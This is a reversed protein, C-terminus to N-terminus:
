VFRWSAQGFTAFTGILQLDEEMTGEPIEYILYGDAANGEGMRLWGIQHAAYGGTDPNHGTFTVIWGFPGATVTDYYDYMRDFERIRVVPNHVEPNYAIVYDKIQLFFDNENFISMSPDFETTNGIIEEHIWVAFYRKGESPKQVQYNGLSPNYWTYYDLFAHRYVIVGCNLDKKGEGNIGQVDKRWWQFWQGEWRQGPVFLDVPYPAITRIAEPTPRPTPPATTPVTVPVPTPTPTKMIERGVNKAATVCGTSLIMLMFVVLLVSIILFLSIGSYNIKM